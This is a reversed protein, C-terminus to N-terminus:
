NQIGLAAFMFAMILATGAEYAREMPVLAHTSLRPHRVHSTMFAKQRPALWVLAAIVFAAVLFLATPQVWLPNKMATPSLIDAAQGMTHGPHTTTATNTGQMPVPHNMVILMWVMGVFMGAHYFCRIREARNRCTAWTAQNAVGQLLFWFSALAFLLLQPLLPRPIDHWIMGLMGLAMLAHAAYNVRETVANRRFARTLCFITGAGLFLSAVLSLHVEFM